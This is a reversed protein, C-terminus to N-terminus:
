TRQQDALNLVLAHRPLREIGAGVHQNGLAALGAAM